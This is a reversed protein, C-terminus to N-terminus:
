PCSAQRDAAWRIAAELMKAHDPLAYTDARHGLASYFSRGAGPCAIWIIPHDEGMAWEDPDYSREDLTALVHSGAARPSAEFSYWEDVHEFSEPFHAMLPHDRDEVVVRAERFQPFTPHGIFRGGGLLTDTYWDWYRYRTGAAGHVGVFGGGGEVWRVFAQKQAETWNDGTINNGFVVDFHALLADDFVAANETAFVAWGNRAAIAEVSARAAPIAEEHRFGSTKSFLLIALPAADVQAPLVPPVTDVVPAQWGLAPAIRQWAAIGFVVLVITLLAGVWAAITRGRGPTEKPM